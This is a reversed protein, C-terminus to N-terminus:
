TRDPSLLLGSHRPTAADYGISPRHPLPIRVYPTQRVERRGAQEREWAAFQARQEALMRQGHAEAEDAGGEDGAARLIQAKLSWVRADFPSLTLSREIMSAAKENEGLALLLEAFGWCAESNDQDAALAEKFAAMAEDYHGQRTHLIGLWAPFITAPSISLGPTNRLEKARM